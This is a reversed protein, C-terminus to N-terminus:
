CTTSPARWGAYCLGFLRLMTVLPWAWSQIAMLSKPKTAPLPCTLWCPWRPALAVAAGNIASVIPLDCDIMSQVLARGERMVRLRAAESSLMGQVLDLTGGACLGKGISRVLICRVGPVAALQAWVTGLAAHGQADMAPMEGAPGFVLEAVGDDGIEAHLNPAIDISRRMM